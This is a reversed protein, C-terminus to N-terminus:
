ILMVRVWKCGWQNNEWDYGQAEYGAQLIEAPVPVLSHFNLVNAKEVSRRNNGLRM